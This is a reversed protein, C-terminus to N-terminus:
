GAEVGLVDNLIFDITEQGFGKSKAGTVARAAAKKLADAEIKLTRNADTAQATALNRMAETVLKLSKPDLVIPADPENGEEAAELTTLLEFISGHLIQANMRAIKDDPEDGFRGALAEAMDKSRRMREGIVDLKQVHRGLASRSVDAGLKDLHALIDDISRGAQRLRGISEKIEGPLKDITSPRNAM